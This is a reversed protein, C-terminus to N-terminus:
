TPSLLGPSAEKFSIGLWPRCFFKLTWLVVECCQLLQSISGEGRTLVFLRPFGLHAWLAPDALLGSINKTCSINSNILGNREIGLFSNSDPLFFPTRDAAATPRRSQRPSARTVGGKAGDCVSHSTCHMRMCSGLLVQSRAWHM